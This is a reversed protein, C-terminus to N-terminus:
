YTRLMPYKTQYQDRIQKLVLESYGYVSICEINMNRTTQLGLLFSKHEVINKTVEFELEFNLPIMGGELSVLLIGAGNGDKSNAGDFYLKWVKNENLHHYNLQRTLHVLAEELLNEDEELFLCSIDSDKGHM